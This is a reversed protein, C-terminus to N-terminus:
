FLPFFEKSFFSPFIGHSPFFYFFIMSLFFASHDATRQLPGKKGWTKKSNITFQKKCMQYGCKSWIMSLLPWVARLFALFISTKGDLSMLPVHRPIKEVSTFTLLTFLVTKEFTSGFIVVHKSYQSLQKFNSSRIDLM